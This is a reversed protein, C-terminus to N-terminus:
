KTKQQWNWWNQKISKVLLGGHKGKVANQTQPGSVNLLSCSYTSSLLYTLYWSDNKLLSSLFLPSFFHLLLCSQFIWLPCTILSMNTLSISYNSFHALIDLLVYKIQCSQLENYRLLFTFVYEPNPCCVYYNRQGCKDRNPQKLM